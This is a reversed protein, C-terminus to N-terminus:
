ITLWHKRSTVHSIQVQSVKFIKTLSQQSYIKTSYLKRIESVQEATLKSNPNNTGNKNAQRGKKIMDQTNDKKTGLFLHEPNVCDRVDCKHCVLLGEPILGIHIEYSIRHALKLKGVRIRGYGNQIKCGTWLWCSKTKKVHKMFRDKLTTM